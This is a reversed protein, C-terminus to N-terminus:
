PKEKRIWLGTEFDWVIGLEGYRRAILQRTVKIGGAKNKANVQAAMYPPPMFINSRRGWEEIAVDVAARTKIEKQLSQRM